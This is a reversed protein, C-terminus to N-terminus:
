RYFRQGDFRFVGNETGVWLFGTRDQFLTSVALNTLGQEAGYNQFGYQQAHLAPLLALVALLPVRLARGILRSACCLGPATRLPLACGSLGKLVSCRPRIRSPAPARDIGGFSRTQDCPPRTQDGAPAHRLDLAM